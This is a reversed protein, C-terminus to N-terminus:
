LQFTVYQIDQEMPVELTLFSFYQIHVQQHLLVQL